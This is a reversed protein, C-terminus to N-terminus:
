VESLAAECATTYEQTSMATYGVLGPASEQEAYKILARRAFRLQTSLTGWRHGQAWAEALGAEWALAECTTLMLAVDTLVENSLVLHISHRYKTLIHGLEHYFVVEEIEANAFKGMFTITRAPPDAWATAAKAGAGYRAANIEDWPVYVLKVQHMEAVAQITPPAAVPLRSPIDVRSAIQTM